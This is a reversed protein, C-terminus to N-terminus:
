RREEQEASRQAEDDGTAAPAVPVAIRDTPLRAALEAEVRAGTVFVEGRGALLVEPFVLSGDDRSEGQAARATRGDLARWLVLRRPAGPDRGRLPASVNGPTPQLPELAVRPGPESGGGPDRRGEAAEETGASERPAGTPDGVRAPSLDRAQGGLDVRASGRPSAPALDAPGRQSRAAEQRGGGVAGAEQTTPAARLAADGLDALALAAAGAGLTILVLRHPARM